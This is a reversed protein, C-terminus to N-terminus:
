AWEPKNNYDDNKNGRGRGRGRSSNGRGGRWGRGGRGRGRGRGRQISAEGFTDMNLNKEEAWRMSNREETSSSITDFFSSQKNYSTGDADREADSDKTFKANASEFDFATDPISVKRSPQAQPRPQGQPRPQAPERSRSPRSSVEPTSEPRPQAQEETSTATQSTTKTPAPKSAEPSAAQGTQSPAAPAQAPSAQPHVQTPQAPSQTTAPAANQTQTPQATQPQPPAQYYGSQPAVYPQPKVQDIPTDLVSLDKVDSGRFVVYDYVDSGPMVELNPNGTQAMRGETGFLRVSKLAVTADDANISELLGVYRLGKNSILSITKGIYQSM